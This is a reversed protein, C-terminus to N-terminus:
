EVTGAVVLHIVDLGEFGHRSVSIAVALSKQYLYVDHIRYSLAGARSKPLVKDDQLITRKQNQLNILALTFIRRVETATGPFPQGPVPRPLLQLEWEPKATPEGSRTFRATGRNGADAAGQALSLVHTGRNGPVIGLRRLTADSAQRVLQRVTEMAMEPTEGTAQPRRMEVPPTAWGNKEVAVFTIRAEVKDAADPPAYEEFALFKGDPSFGIFEFSSTTGAPATAGVALLCLLAAVPAFAM